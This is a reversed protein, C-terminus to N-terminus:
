HREGLFSQVRANVWVPHSLFPLHGADEIREVSLALTRGLVSLTAPDRFPDLGGELALAPLRHLPALSPLPERAQRLRRAVDALGFRGAQRLLELTAALPLRRAGVAGLGMPGLLRASPGPLAVRSLLLPSLGRPRRSFLPAILVLARVRQPFRAALALATRCGLSAAILTFREPLPFDPHGLLAVDEELASRGRRSPPPTWLLLRHDRSLPALPAFIRGTAALPPICLVSRERDRCGHAFTFLRTTRGLVWREEGTVWFGPQVQHPAPLGDLLPSWSAPGLRQPWADASSDRVTEL